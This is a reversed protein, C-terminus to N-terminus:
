CCHPSEIRNRKKIKLSNDRHWSMGITGIDMERCEERNDMTDRGRNDDKETHVDNGWAVGDVTDLVVDKVMGM